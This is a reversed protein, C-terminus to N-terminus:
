RFNTSPKNCPKGKKAATISISQCLSDNIDQNAGYKSTRRGLLLFSSASCCTIPSYAEAAMYRVTDAPRTYSRGPSQRCNRPELLAIAAAIVKKLRPRVTFVEKVPSGNLITPAPWVSWNEMSQTSIMWCAYHRNPRQLTPQEGEWRRCM